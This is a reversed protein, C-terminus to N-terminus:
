ELVRRDDDSLALRNLPVEGIDSNGDFQIFAQISHHEFCPPLLLVDNLTENTSAEVVVLASAASCSLVPLFVQWDPSRTQATLRRWTKRVDSLGSLQCLPSLAPFWLDQASDSGASHP